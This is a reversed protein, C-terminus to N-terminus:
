IVPVLVSEDVIVTVLTDNSSTYEQVISASQTNESTDTSELTEETDDPLNEMEFVENEGDIDEIQIIEDEDIDKPLNEIEFMEGVDTADIELTEMINEEDISEEDIIEDLVEDTVFLLEESEREVGGYEYLMEEVHEMADEVSVVEEGKDELITALEEASITILDIEEDYLEKTTDSIVINDSSDSDASQLLVAMNEVYEDEMDDRDVSAIDQLFVQDDDITDMDIEGLTVEGLKFTVSDGELHSFGGDADTVDSFGSSTEYALGEIIGDIITPVSGDTVEVTSRDGSDEVSTVSAKIKNNQATTIQEDTIIYVTTMVGDIPNQDIIYSGDDEAEIFNGNSDKLRAGDPIDKITLSTLIETDDSRSAELEIKYEYSYGGEIHFNDIELWEPNISNSDNLIGVELQGDKDLNTIITHTVEDLEDIKTQNYINNNNNIHIRMADDGDDWQSSDIDSDFTITVEKNASQSGFDFTKVSTHYNQDIHMSENLEDVGSGTWGDTTTDFSDMVDISSNTIQIGNNINMSLIPADANDIEDIVNVGINRTSTNGNNDTVLVSVIDSGKFGSYPEYIVEGNAGLSASGHTAGMVSSTINGDVDNVTAIVQAINEIVSSDSEKIIPADTFRENYAINVDIKLTDAEDRDSDIIKAIIHETHAGGITDSVVYRYTGTNFNIIFNGHQGAIIQQPNDKDYKAVINGVSVEDLHGGDAGFQILQKGNGDSAFTGDKYLEVTALLADELDSIDLLNVADKSVENENNDAVHAIDVLMESNNVSYTYLKDIEGSTVFDTWLNDYDVSHIPDSEDDRDDLAIGTYADFDTQFHEGDRDYTDGDGFFYMIDQTAKPQNGSYSNEVMARLGNEIDTGDKNSDLVIQKASEADVWGSQHNGNAYFQVINVSVDGMSSYEDIAANIASQTDALDEDSMSSSIDIVFSINTKITEIDINLVTIGNATLPADDEIVVNIMADDFRGTNDTVRVGVPIEIINEVKGSSPIDHDIPRFLNTTYLGTDDIDVRLVDGPNSGTTTSGIITHNNNSFNWEIVEGNSSYHVSSSYNHLTVSLVDTPNPDRVIFQGSSTIANTTDIDGVNDMIGGALGEESLYSNQKNPNIIPNNPTDNDIIVAYVLGLDDIDISDFGQINEISKIKVHFNENELDADEYSQVRFNVSSEGELIILTQEHGDYDDDEASTTNNSFIVSVQTDKDVVIPDGNADALSVTFNTSIEGEIIEDANTMIGYAVTSISGGGGTTDEGGDTSGGGGTTDEDGDTSGDGGTTDEDGDTSGGDGILNEGQVLSNNNNPIDIIINNDDDGELFKEKLPIGKSPIFTEEGITPNKSPIKTIPVSILQEEIPISSPVFTDRYLPPVSAITNLPTYIPTVERSTSITPIASVTSVEPSLAITNQSYTPINNHFEASNYFDNDLLRSSIRQEILENREQTLIDDRLPAEVNTTAGSSYITNDLNVRFLADIIKEGKANVVIEGEKIADGTYIARIDGLKNQAFCECHLEKLYGIVTSVEDDVIFDIADSIVMGSIDVIIEGEVISDGAKIKRLTGDEDQAFFEGNINKLFGVTHIM